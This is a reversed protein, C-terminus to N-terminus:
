KRDRFCAIFSCTLIFVEGLIIFVEVATEGDWVWSSKNIWFFLLAILLFSNSKWFFSFGRKFSFIKEKKNKTTKNKKKQSALPKDSELFNILSEQVTEVYLSVSISIFLYKNGDSKDMEINWIYNKGPVLIMGTELNWQDKNSIRKNYLIKSAQQNNRKFDKLFLPIKPDFDGEEAIKDLVVPDVNHLEEFQDDTIEIIIKFPDENSTSDLNYFDGIVKNLESNKTQFIIHKQEKLQVWEVIVTSDESPYVLMLKDLSEFRGVKNAERTNIAIEKLLSLQQDEYKQNSIFTQPAKIIQNIEKKSIEFDKAVKRAEEASCSDVIVALLVQTTIRVKENLIM